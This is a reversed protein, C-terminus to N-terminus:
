IDRAENVTVEQNDCGFPLLGEMDQGMEAELIRQRTGEHSGKWQKMPLEEM